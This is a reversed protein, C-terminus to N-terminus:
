KAAVLRLQPVHSRQYPMHCRPQPMHSRTGQSPISGQGGANPSSFRLWQIVLSNVLNKM